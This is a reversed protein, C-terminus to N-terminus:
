GQRGNQRSATNKKSGDGDGQPLMGFGGCANQVMRFIFQTADDLTVDDLDDWFALVADEFAASDMEIADVRALYKEFHAASTEALSKLREAAQLRRDLVLLPLIADRGRALVYMAKAVDLLTAETAADDLFPSHIADLAFILATGKIPPFEVGGFLYPTGYMDMAEAHYQEVDGNLAAEIDAETKPDIGAATMKEYDEIEVQRAM